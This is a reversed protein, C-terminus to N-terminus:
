EVHKQLQYIMTRCWTQESQALLLRRNQLNYRYFRWNGPDDLAEPFDSLIVALASQVQEIVRDLKSLRVEFMAITEAPTQLWASYAMTLFDDRNYPVDPETGIWSILQQRGKDTVTYLRKNPRSTQEVDQSAVLGLDELTALTPYVQSTKAPRFNELQKVIDYGSRPQRALVGLVQHSLNNLKKSQKPM